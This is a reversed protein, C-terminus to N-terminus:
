DLLPYSNSGTEILLFLEVQRLLGLPRLGSVPKRRCMCPMPGASRPAIHNSQSVVLPLECVSMRLKDFSAQRLIQRLCHRSGMCRFQFCSIPQM